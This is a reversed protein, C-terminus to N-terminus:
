GPTRDAIHPVSRATDQRPYCPVRLSLPWRAEPIALDATCSTGDPMTALLKHRGILDPFYVQGDFGAETAHNSGDVAVLSGVPLVRGDALAITALVQHQRRLGFRAVAGSRDGPALSTDLRDWRADLPLDSPDIALLNPQYSLLGPVLLKGAAGTRGVPRNNLTVAVNKLGQTDVLAFGDTIPSATFVSGAMVVVSGRANGQLYTSGGYSDLGLGVDARSGHYRLEALGRDSEGHAGYVRWGIEGPDLAPQGAEVTKQGTASEYSASISARGGLRLSVGVMVTTYRGGLDRYGTAYAYAHGLLERSYTATLLSTRLTPRTADDGGVLSGRSSSGAQVVRREIDTYAIGLSGQRGLVVGANAQVIHSPAPDGVLSGVDRFDRTSNLMSFGLHYNGATREVAVYSQVGTGAKSKSVGLAATAVAFHGIETTAGGTALGLGRTAEGHAEVTLWSTLGRRGTATVAFPGYNNSELGFNRRIAGAEVSFASLGPRLLSSTAYFSSTEVTQRGSPDRVTVSVEGAGSVVPLQPIYFPGPAVPSNIQRVGNVLVDVTSPVAAGGSVIPLPYTILDPRLAFNTSIQVGGIRLSRSSALAGSIVDGASYTRLRSPDSYSYTTDLRVAHVGGYSTTATFNSQATGFAGFLRASGFGYADVSGDHETVTLDYNLLAGFPSASQTHATTQADGIMHTALSRVPVKLRVTQSREDLAAEVGAIEASDILADQRADEPPVLGLARWEGATAFLHGNQEQFSGIQQSDYGNIIVELLLERASTPQAQAPSGALLAVGSLVSGAISGLPRLPCM